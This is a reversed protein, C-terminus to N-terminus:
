PFMEKLPDWYYDIWGEETTKAFESPVDKQTFTVKTGKKVPAFTFTITSFHKDPWDNARWTQVITKDPILKLNV